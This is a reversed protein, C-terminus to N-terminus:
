KSAKPKITLDITDSPLVVRENRMGGGANKIPVQGDGDILFSYEGPPISGSEIKVKAKTQDAPIRTVPINFNPPLQYGSGNLEIANPMEKSRKVEVEIEIPEGQTKVIKRPTASLKFPAEGRVALVISRTARSIAPTNVTDWVIVGGRAKREIKGRSSESVGVIEIEAEAEPAEAAATAVLTGWHLGPAIVIPDVTVGKPLNRAEIHIPDNHGSLRFVLVDLRERGGRLVNHSDSRIEHPPQVILRFDASPDRKLTLRYVYQPGGQVQGYLHELRITYVGDEPANFAHKLDRHFTTFRINGINEGDDLVHSMVDGRPNLLELDPDVPSGIRQGFVEIEYREGKKAKFSFCDVDKPAQFQGSVATSPEIPQATKPTDNPERELAENLDSILVVGANSGGRDTAIRVPSGDLRAAPPRVLDGPFFRSSSDPDAPAAVSVTTSEIPRGKILLPTAAGGPLDRGYVTVTATTGKKVGTPLTFDILPRTGIQLRYFYDNNGEYTFDNLKIYYDGDEPVDFDVFPDRMEDRVNEDQSSALEKGSANFLSLRGDLRSDIRWAWCEILLRTGKKASVVFWDVDENPAIRGNVVTDLSVRNAKELENNPEAEVIENWDSVVFTRPNSVGHKGLFRVDHFGIATTPAVDLEFRTPKGPEDALKKAKIGPDSCYLGTAGELDRGAVEVTIKGGRKAGAPFVSHLKPSPLEGRAAEATFWIVWFCTFLVCRRAPSEGKGNMFRVIKKKIMRLTDTKKLIEM